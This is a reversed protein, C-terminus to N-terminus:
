KKNEKEEREIRQQELRQLASSMAKELNLKLMSASEVSRATGRLSRRELFTKSSEVWINGDVNIINNGSVVYFYDNVIGTLKELNSDLIERETFNSDDLLKLYSYIADHFLYGNGISSFLIMKKAVKSIKDYLIWTKNEIKTIGLLSNNVLVVQDRLFEFSKNRSLMLPNYCEINVGYKVGLSAIHKKDITKTPSIIFIKDVLKSFFKIYLEFDFSDDNTFIRNNSDNCDGDIFKLIYQVKRANILNKM